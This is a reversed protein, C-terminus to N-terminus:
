VRGILSTGDSGAQGLGAIDDLNKGGHVGHDGVASITRPFGRGVELRAGLRACEDPVLKTLIWKFRVM